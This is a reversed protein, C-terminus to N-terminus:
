EPVDVKDEDLEAEARAVEEVTVPIMLDSERLATEVLKDLKVGAITPANDSKSM